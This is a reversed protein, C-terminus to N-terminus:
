GAVEGAAALRRLEGGHDMPVLGGGGQQKSSWRGGDEEEEEDSGLAASMNAAEADRLWPV